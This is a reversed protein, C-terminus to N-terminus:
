ELVWEVEAVEINVGRLPFEWERIANAVRKQVEQAVERWNARSDLKLSINIFVEEKTSVRDNPSLAEGRVMVKTNKLLYDFDGKVGEVPFASRAAMKVLTSVSVKIEGPEESFPM